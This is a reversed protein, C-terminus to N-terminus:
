PAGASPNLAANGSADSSQDLLTQFSGRWGESLAPICLARALSHRPHRPLYLLGDIEAVTMAEPGEGVKVIPEGAQGEGEEQGAVRCRTAPRAQGIAAAADDGARQATHRGAGPRRM